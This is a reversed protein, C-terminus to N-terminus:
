LNEIEEVVKRELGHRREWEHESLAYLGSDPYEGNRAKERVKRLVRDFTNKSNIGKWLSNFVENSLYPLNLNERLYSWFLHIDIEKDQQHEEILQLIVAEM